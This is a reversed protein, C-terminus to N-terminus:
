EGLIFSSKFASFVTLPNELLQNVGNRQGGGCGLGCISFRTSLVWKALCPNKHSDNKLGLDDLGSTENKM